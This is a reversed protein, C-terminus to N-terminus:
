AGSPQLITKVMIIGVDEEDNDWETRIRLDQHASSIAKKLEEVGYKKKLWSLSIKGGTVSVRAMESIATTPDSLNQLVTISTVSTFASDRFPLLSADARILDGKVFERRLDLSAIRLMERSTDVGVLRRARDSLLCLLLGTGCGVDLMIGAKTFIDGIHNYKRYQIERYRRNYITASADYLDMIEIRKKANQNRL